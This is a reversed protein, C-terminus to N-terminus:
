AVRRIKQHLDAITQNSKLLRNTLMRSLNLMIIGFIKPYKAYLSFITDQEIVLLDVNGAAIANTMRKSEQILVTEGLAEGKGLAMIDIQKDNVTKTLRVKGTLIVYFERGVDNECFVNQEDEFSEVFCSKIVLDIEADMLEYFLFCRKIQDITVM